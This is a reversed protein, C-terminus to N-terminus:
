KVPLVLRVCTPAGENNGSRDWKNLGCNFSRVVHSKGSAPGSPNDQAASSYEGFYDSCWEYYWGDSFVEKACPQHSTYEWEAETPLRLPRRSIESAKRAVADAQEWKAFDKPKTSETPKEGLMSAAFAKSLYDTSVYFSSVFVRHVPESKMQTSYRDDYGMNFVGGRILVMKLNQGGVNVLVTDPYQARDLVQYKGEELGSSSEEEMLSYAAKNSDDITELKSIDTMNFFVDQGGIVLTLKGTADLEKLQGTIIAGSKLVVRSLKLQDSEQAYATLTCVSALLIFLISHIRKMQINKALNPLGDADDWEQHFIM